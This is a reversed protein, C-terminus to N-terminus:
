SPWDHRSVVPVGGAIMPVDGRGRIIADSPVCGGVPNGAGNGTGGAGMGGIGCM